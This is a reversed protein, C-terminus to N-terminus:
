IDAPRRIMVSILESCSRCGSPPYPPFLVLSSPELSHGFIGYYRLGIRSARVSREPLIASWASEAILTIQQSLDRVICHKRPCCMAGIELKAHLQLMLLLAGAADLTYM